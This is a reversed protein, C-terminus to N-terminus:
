FNLAQIAKPSKGDMAALGQRMWDLLQAADYDHYPLLACVIRFRLSEGGPLTPSERLGRAVAHTAVSLAEPGTSPAELLLAFQHDGVRAATDIDRVVARLRSAAVVLSREAAERGHADQLAQYNSFDVLLLACQQQYRRARLLSGHLRQSLVRAHSLGTLPDSQSLASSRAAAERHQNLRRYLGYFLIPGELASGFLLAYGTLLGTPLIAFNRLLPFLAAVLVPLFGLAVWRAHRDGEWVALGIVLLVLAMSASILTNNVVFGESTPVLADIGGGACLMLMLALLLRDLAVAFQKPRTVTRVFWIASAAALMPLLFVSSNTWYPQNPWLYQGAIGTFAAQTLALLLVYVAYTGFASDRYSIAIVAAIVGLLLALGFYAGLLLHDREHEYTLQTDSLVALAASYPVRAHQVRLYYRASQGTEPSLAFVPYRSSQPWASLPLSDGAMQRVWEGNPKRYYLEALDVGALALELQWRKRADTVKLDFRIWLAKGEILHVQSDNRSVFPLTAESAVLQELGIRASDDIWYESQDSLSVKERSGDVLVETAAAGVPGAM